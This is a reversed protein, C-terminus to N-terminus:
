KGEHEEHGEHYVGAMVGWGTSRTQVTSLSGRDAAQRNVVDVRYEIRRPYLRGGEEGGYPLGDMWGCGDGRGSHPWADVHYQRQLCFAWHCHRHLEGRYVGQAYQGAGSG